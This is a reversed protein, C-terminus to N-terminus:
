ARKRASPQHLRALMALLDTASMRISGETANEEPLQFRGKHLRRYLLTFGDEEQLLLKVHTRRSNLFIFVDRPQVERGLQHRVIGCLGDFSMRMDTRGAYLYYSHHDTLLAIASM